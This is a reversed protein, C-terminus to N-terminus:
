EPVSHCDNSFNGLKCCASNSVIKYKIKVTITYNKNFINWKKTEYDKEKICFEFHVRIHLPLQTSIEVLSQDFCMFTLTYLCLSSQPRKNETRCETSKLIKDARWM